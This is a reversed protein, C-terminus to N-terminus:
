PNIQKVTYPADVRSEVHRVDLPKVRLVDLPKVRLVDLLGERSREQPADLVEVHRVDADLRSERQGEEVDVVLLLHTFQSM